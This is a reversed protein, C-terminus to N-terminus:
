LIILKRNIDIQPECSLFGLNLVITFCKCESPYILSWIYIIKIGVKYSNNFTQLKRLAVKKYVFSLVFLFILLTISLMKPSVVLLWIRIQCVLALLGSLEVFTINKYMKTRKQNLIDFLVDWSYNQDGLM